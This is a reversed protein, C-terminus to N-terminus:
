RQTELKTHNTNGERYRTLEEFMLSTESGMPPITSEKVSGAVVQRELTYDAYYRQM